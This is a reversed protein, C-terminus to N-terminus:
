ARLCAPFTVTPTGSYGDLSSITLSNPGGAGGPCVDMSAREVEIGIRGNRVVSVPTTTTKPTGTSPTFTFTM